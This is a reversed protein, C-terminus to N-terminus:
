KYVIGVTCFIRKKQQETYIVNHITLINENKFLAHLEIEISYIIM